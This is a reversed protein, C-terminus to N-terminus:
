LRTVLCHCIVRMIFKPLPLEFMLQLSRDARFVGKLTAGHRIGAYVLLNVGQSITLSFSTGVTLDLYM